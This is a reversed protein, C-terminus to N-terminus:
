CLLEMRLGVPIKWSLVRVSSQSTTPLDEHNLTWGQELDVFGVGSGDADVWASYADIGVPAASLYGQCGSMPDDGPNVPPPVPGSELYALEVHPWKAIAKVVDTADIDHPVVIAFYATLRPDLGAAIAREELKELVATELREFLPRLCVGPFNTSLDQWSADHATANQSAGTENHALPGGPAFKVVIRRTHVPVPVTSDRSSAVSTIM